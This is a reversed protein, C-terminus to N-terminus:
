VSALYRARGAALPVRRRHDLQAVPQFGSSQGLLTVHATAIGVDARAATSRCHQTLRPPLTPAASEPPSGWKRGSLGLTTPGAM